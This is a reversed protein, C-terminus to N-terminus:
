PSVESINITKRCKPCPISLPLFGMELLIVITKKKSLAPREPFLLPEQPIGPM